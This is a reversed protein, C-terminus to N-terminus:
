DGVTQDLTITGIHEIHFRSWDYLSTDVLDNYCIGLFRGDTNRPTGAVERLGM